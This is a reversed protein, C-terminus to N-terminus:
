ETGFFRDLRVRRLYDAETTYPARAEKCKRMVEYRVHRKMKALLVDLAARICREPNIKWQHANLRPDISQTWPEFLPTANDRDLSMRLNHIRHPPPLMTLIRERDEPKLKESSEVSGAADMRPYSKNLDSDFLRIGCQLSKQLADMQATAWGTRESESKKLPVPGQVKWRSGTGHLTIRPDNCPQGYASESWFAPTEKQVYPARGWFQAQTIHRKEQVAHVISARQSDSIQRLPGRPLVGNTGMAAPLAVRDRERPASMPRSYPNGATAPRPAPLGGNMSAGLGGRGAPPFSSPLSNLPSFKQSLFRQSSLPSLLLSSILPVSALPMLHTSHHISLQIPNMAYLLPALQSAFMWHFLDLTGRNLLM